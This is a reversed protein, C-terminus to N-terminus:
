AIGEEHTGIQINERSGYVLPDRLLRMAVHGGTPAMDRGPAPCTGVVPPHYSWRCPSRTSWYWKTIRWRTGTAPRWSHTRWRMRPCRTSNSPRHFRRALQLRPLQEGRHTTPLLLQCTCDM